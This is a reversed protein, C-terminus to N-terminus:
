CLITHGSWEHTTVLRMYLAAKQWPARNEAMEAFSAVFDLCMCCFPAEIVIMIFGAM